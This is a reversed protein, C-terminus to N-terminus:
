NRERRIKIPASTIPKRTEKKPHFSYLIQQKSRQNPFGEVGYKMLIHKRDMAPTEMNEDDTRKSSYNM